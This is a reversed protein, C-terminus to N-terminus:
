FSAAIYQLLCSHLRWRLYQSANRPRLQVTASVFLMLRATAADDPEHIGNVSTTKVPDLRVHTPSMQEPHTATFEVCSAAYRVGQRDSDPRESINWVSPVRSVPM